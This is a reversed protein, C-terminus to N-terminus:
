SCSASAMKVWRTPMGGPWLSASPKTLRQALPRTSSSVPQDLRFTDLTRDYVRFLAREYEM